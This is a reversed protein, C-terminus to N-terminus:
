VFSKPYNQYKSREFKSQLIEKNCFTEIILFIKKTVVIKLKKKWSSMIALLKNVGILRLVINCLFAFKSVALDRGLNYEPEYRIRRM